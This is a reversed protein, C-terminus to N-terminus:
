EQVNHMFNPYTNYLSGWSDTFKLFMWICCSAKELNQFWCEEDIIERPGFRGYTTKPELQM